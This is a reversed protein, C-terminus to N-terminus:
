SNVGEGEDGTTLVGTAGTPSYTNLRQRAEAEAEQAKEARGRPPAARQARTRKPSLTGNRRRLAQCSTHVEDLLGNVVKEM